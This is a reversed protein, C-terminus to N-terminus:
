PALVAEAGGAALDLPSLVGLARMRRIAIEAAVAVDGYRDFTLPRIRQATAPDAIRTLAKLAAFRVQWAPDDLSGLLAPVGTPDAIWGLARCCAVRESRVGDPHVLLLAPVGSRRGRLGLALALPTRVDAFAPNLIASEVYHDPAAKALEITLRMTAGRRWYLARVLADASRAGGIIGLARAGASQVRPNQHALLRGLWPVAEELRLAGAVRASRIRRADSPSALGDLMQAMAGRAKLEDRVWWLMSSTPGVDRMVAVLADVAGNHDREFDLDPLPGRGSLGARVRAVTVVKRASAITERAGRM